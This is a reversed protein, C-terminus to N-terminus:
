YSCPITNAHRVHSELPPDAQPNNFVFNWAEASGFLLGLPVWHKVWKRSWFPSIMQDRLGKHNFGWEGRASFRLELWNQVL